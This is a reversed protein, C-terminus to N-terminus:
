PESASPHMGYQPLELLGSSLRPYQEDKASLVPNRIPWDIGLAPDDWGIGLETQPDYYETLKYLVDAEESMTCFGHAFGPPIWLAERKLDDLIVGVWRGFTPSGNRVDIAVDFITGRAVSILKAQQQMVQYHLGRLVGRTSRSHADRVFPMRLGESAFQGLNYTELFFGRSDSWIEPTIRLVGALETTRVDV